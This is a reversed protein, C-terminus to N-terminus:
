LHQILLRALNLRWLPHYFALSLVLILGRGFPQPCRSQIEFRYAVPSSAGLLQGSLTDGQASEPALTVAFTRRLEKPGRLAKISSFQEWNVSHVREQFGATSRAQSVFRCVVDPDETPRAGLHLAEDHRGFM